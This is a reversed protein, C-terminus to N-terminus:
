KFRIAKLPSIRMVLMSPIIMMLVCCAFTGVNLFILDMMRLNVPVYSVYYSEQDLSIFRYTEQFYCFTLGLVNGILMGALILYMANYMFVKRLSTNRMGLAKLVGIMSSRELILILLASIMNIGAVLIMLIIIVQGNVDLLEVWDFLQPYLEYATIAELYLPIRENLQEAVLDSSVNDRVFVEFGGSQGSTWNNLRRILNIHCLAFMKDLEDIGMEYIGVVQLRRVRLNQEAFYVFVKDGVKLQLKKALSQSVMLDNNVATDSWQIMSGSVVKDSLFASDFDAGHGKLVIPEIQEEFRIIGVKKAYEQYHALSSVSDMAQILSAEKDIVTQEPTNGLDIRQIQLNGSFGNIKDKISGKFGNVIALAIIMVTLGIAIGSIAIRVILRSFKRGSKGSIRRAIYYPLNM